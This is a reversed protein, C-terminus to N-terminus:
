REACTGFQSSSFHVRLTNVGILGASSYEGQLTLALSKEVQVEGGSRSSWLQMNVSAPM